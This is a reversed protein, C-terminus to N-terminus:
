ESDLICSNFRLIRGTMQWSQAFAADIDAHDVLTGVFQVDDETDVVLVKCVCDANQIIAEYFLRTQGGTYDM